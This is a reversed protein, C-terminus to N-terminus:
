RSRRPYDRSYTTVKSFSRRQSPSMKYVLEKKVTPWGHTRPKKGIPYTLVDTSRGAWKLRCRCNPHVLPHISNVTRHYHHPFAHDLEDGRYHTGDLAQCVKCTRPSTVRADFLWWMEPEHAREFGAHEVISRSMLQSLLYFM